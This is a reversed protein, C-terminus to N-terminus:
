ATHAASASYSVTRSDPPPRLPPPSTGHRARPTPAAGRVQALAGGGGRGGGGGAGVRSSEAAVHRHSGKRAVRTRAISVATLAFRCTCLALSFTFHVCYDVVGIVVNAYFVLRNRRNQISFQKQLHMTTPQTSGINKLYHLLKSPINEIQLLIFM